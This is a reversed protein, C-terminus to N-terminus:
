YKHQHENSMALFEFPTIYVRNGNKMVSYTCDNLGMDNNHLHVVGEYANAFEKDMGKYHLSVKSNLKTSLNEM